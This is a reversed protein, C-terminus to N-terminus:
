SARSQAEPRAPSLSIVNESAELTNGAEFLNTIRAMRLQGEGDLPGVATLVRQIADLALRRTELDEPLMQQIAGLATEQDILLLYFQERVLAKFEPLSTGPALTADGRLRRVIAFGREDVARRAKGVYILARITAARLGGATMRAMLEAIRAQLLQQHWYDKTPRHLHRTGTPDIGLAAQLAPSGYTTFFMQEAVNDRADRWANLATIIQQSINEQWSIFPNDPSAQSRHDRAWNAMPKLMAMM